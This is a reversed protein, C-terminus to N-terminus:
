CTESYDIDLLSPPLTSCLVEVTLAGFDKLMYYTRVHLSEPCLRVVKCLHTVSVCVCVRVCVCM